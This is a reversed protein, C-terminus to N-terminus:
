RGGINRNLQLDMTYSSETINGQVERVLWLGQDPKPIATGKVLVEAGAIIRPNAPMPIQASELKLRELALASLARPKADNKSATVGIVLRNKYASGSLLSSIPKDAVDGVNPAETTTTPTQTPLTATVGSGSGGLADTPKTQPTESVTQSSVLDSVSVLQTFRKGAEYGTVLVETPISHLQKSIVFDSINANVFGKTDTYEGMVLVARDRKGVELGPGFYLSSGDSSETAVYGIETALKTLIAWDTERKQIASRQGAELAAQPLSATVTKSSGGLADTRNPTDPTSILDHAGFASLPTVRIMPAGPVAVGRNATTNELVSPVGSVLGLYIGVHGWPLSVTQQFLINGPELANTAWGLNKAAQAYDNADTGNDEENDDVRISEQALKWQMKGVGLAREVVQRVLQACWGTKTRTDATIGALDGAIVQNAVRLVAANATSTTANSSIAPARPATSKPKAEQLPQYAGAGIMIPLGWRAAIEKAADVYTKAALKLSRKGSNRLRWSVGYANISLERTKATYTSDAITLNKAVEVLDGVYGARVKWLVAGERLLGSEELDFADKGVITINVAYSQGFGSKHTFSSINYERRSIRKSDALIIEFDPMMTPDGAKHRARTAM